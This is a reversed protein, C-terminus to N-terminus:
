KTSPGTLNSIMEQGAGIGAGVAGLGVTGKVLKWLLGPANKGLKYLLGPKLGVLAKAAPEIEQIAQNLILRNQASAGKLSSALADLKAASSLKAFTPYPINLAEGILPSSLAKGSSLSGKILGAGTKLLGPAMAITAATQAGSGFIEGGSAVGGGIIKNYEDLSIKGEDFLKQIEKGEKTKFFIAQSIGKGLGTVGTADAVGKIIPHNSLFGEKKVEPAPIEPTQTQTQSQPFLGQPTQYQSMGSINSQQGVGLAQRFENGYEPNNYTYKGDATKKAGNWLAAIEEPQRGQDKWEKIRKYAVQNQNGKDMPANENDLYQKALNKWGPGTKENFQYAGHADGNDGVANYPDKEAGSEVQRIAKMVKVVKPDLETGDQLTLNQTPNM